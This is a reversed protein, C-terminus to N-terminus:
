CYHQTIQIWVHKTKHRFNSMTSCRGNRPKLKYWFTSPLARLRSLLSSGINLCGVPPGCQKVACVKEWLWDIEGNTGHCCLKCVSLAVSGKIASLTSHCCLKCLSLAVSGQIAALTSHCCLKCVSSGVSGKIASFTSHCGPMYASSVVSGKIAPLASHCSLKYLGVTVAVCGQKAALTSHCCLKCVSSGVSGKIASFTGQCSPMYVISVM